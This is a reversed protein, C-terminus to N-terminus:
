PVVRLAVHGERKQPDADYAECTWASYERCITPRHEYISCGDPRLHPCVVDDEPGSGGFHVSVPVMVFEAVHGGLSESKYYLLTEETVDIGAADMREVDSGTVQIDSNRCCAGTCTSCPVERRLMQRERVAQLAANTFAKAAFRLYDPADDLDIVEQYEAFAENNGIPINLSIGVLEETIDLNIEDLDSLLAETLDFGRGEGGAPLSAHKAAWRQKAQARALKRKM